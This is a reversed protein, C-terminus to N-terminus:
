MDVYAVKSGMGQINKGRGGGGGVHEALKSVHKHQSLHYVKSAGNGIILENLNPPWTQKCM